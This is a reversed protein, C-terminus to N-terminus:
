EKRVMAGHEGYFGCSGGVCCRYEAEPVCGLVPERISSDILPRWALYGERSDSRLDLCPLEVDGAAIGSPRYDTRQSQDPGIGCDPGFLIPEGPVHM